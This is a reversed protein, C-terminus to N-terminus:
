EFRGPPRMRSCLAPQIRSGLFPGSDDARPQMRLAKAGQVNSRQDIAVRSSRLDFVQCLPKADVAGGDGAKESAM